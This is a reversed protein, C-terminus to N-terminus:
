PCSGQPEYRGDPAPLYCDCFAVSESRGRWLFFYVRTRVCVPGAAQESIVRASSYGIGSADQPRGGAEAGVLWVRDEVFPGRRWTLEGQVALLLALFPVTMVCLWVLVSVVCGTRSM